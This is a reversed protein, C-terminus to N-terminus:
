GDPPPMVSQVTIPVVSVNLTFTQTGINQPTASDAVQITATYPGPTTATGSVLGSSSLGIGPPLAGASVTWTYAGPKGGSAQLQLTYGPDLRDTAPLTTTLVAVPPYVPPATLNPNGPNALVTTTNVAQPVSVPTIVTLPNFAITAPSPNVVRVTIYATEGPALTVSAENPTANTIDPNTINPNSATFVTPNTINAVTIWHTQVGLVCSVAVPTQYLKNIILQLVIGSPVVGNTAAKVTYSATTNGTNTIPYIVDQISGNTIDPNTINPNTINPNTINPNTINPNT